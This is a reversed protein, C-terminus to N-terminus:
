RCIKKSLSWHLTPARQLYSLREDPIIAALKLITTGSDLFISRGTEIYDMAALAIKQKATMNSNLRLSFADEMSTTIFKMSRVGGRVKIAEGIKEFYEIDRRLTMGSVNPFAEELEHLSVYPKTQLMNRIIEHRLKKM